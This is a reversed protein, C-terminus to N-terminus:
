RLIVENILKGRGRSAGGSFIGSILSLLFLELFQLVSLLKKKCQDFYIPDILNQNRCGLVDSWGPPEMKVWVSSYHVSTEWIECSM